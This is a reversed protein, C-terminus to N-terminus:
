ISLKSTAFRTDRDPTSSCLARQDIGDDFALRERLTEAAERLLREIV